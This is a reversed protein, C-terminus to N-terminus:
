SFDINLYVIFDLNEAPKYIGLLLFRNREIEKAKMPGNQWLLANFPKEYKEEAV